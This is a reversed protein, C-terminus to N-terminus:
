NINVSLALTLALPRGATVLTLGAAQGLLVNTLILPVPKEFAVAARNPGTDAVENETLDAVRIM